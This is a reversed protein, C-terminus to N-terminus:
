HIGRLGDRRVADGMFAHVEQLFALLWDYTLEDKKFRQYFLDAVVTFLNRALDTRGPIGLAEAWIGVVAHEVLTHARQYCLQYSLNERHNRLQRNFVLDPKSDLLVHLFEPDFTTCAGTREALQEARELHYHLLRDVFSPIDACHHHFSSKSIGVQRAMQEVKLAEPGREAFTTYGAMIWALETPESM